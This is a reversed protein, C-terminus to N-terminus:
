YIVASGIYCHLEHFVVNASPVSSIDINNADRLDFSTAGAEGLGLAYRLALTTRFTIRGGSGANTTPLYSSLRGGFTAGYYDVRTSGLEEPAPSSSRDTYIGGGLELNELVKLVMGARINFVSKRDVLYRSGDTPEVNLSQLAHSYDAEVSISGSKIQYATGFTIRAPSLLGVPAASRAHPDYTNITTGDGTGNSQALQVFLSTDVAEHLLIVPLRLMLALSLADLPVYRLGLTAQAGFRSSEDRSAVTIAISSAPTVSPDTAGLSISSHTDVGEYVGFLAFGLYLRHPLKFGMGAGLHYRLFSSDLTTQALSTRGLEDRYQVANAVKLVDDGTTFLGAGLMGWRLKTVYTVSPSALATRGGDLSQTSVSGDARTVSIADEYNRFQLAAVSLSLSLHSREILALGAPNYWVSGPGATNAVVAGGAMAADGDLFYGEDNGARASPAPDALLAM